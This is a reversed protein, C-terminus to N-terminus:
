PAKQTLPSEDTPSYAPPPLAVGDPDLYGAGSKLAALKPRSAQSAKSPRPRQVPEPEVENVGSFPNIPTEPVTFDWAGDPRRTAVRMNKGPQHADRTGFPTVRSALHRPGVVTSHSDLNHFGELGAKARRRMRWTFAFIGGLLIVALVTLCVALTVTGKNGGDKHDDNTM